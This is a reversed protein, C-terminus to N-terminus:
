SWSSAARHADVTPAPSSTQAVALFVTDRVTKVVTDVVLSDTMAAQKAPSLPHDRATRASRGDAPCSRYRDPRRRHLDGPHLHRPDHHTGSGSSPVFHGSSKAPRTAM